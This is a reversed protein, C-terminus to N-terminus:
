EAPYDDLIRKAVAEKYNWDRFDVIDVGRHALYRNALEAVEPDSDQALEKLYPTAGYGLSGIHSVDIEELAGSQYARVNYRAVVTDVDVWFTVAGLVLAAIVVAKMNPFKPKFLWVSELMTTVTLWVMIIQTLVRKRTLGFSGIYLFMKASATTILFLTVMGLFLCLVKTLGPAADKKEVLGMVFCMLGLNIASLWAMEFFGRRAYEAMTFEEPLIGSLGGSFYALQSLLYVCYVLCVSVLLINVTIASFGRFTRTKAANKEAHRLGVCRSYLVWGAFAGFFLSNLPESWDKEPLLDMLGEFAADAKMLLVVLVAVVPVAFVIGLFAAGGKKGVTGANKRADNLGRAAASMSGIGLVFFARPADLVSGIGGPARRNQGTVLCFCLNVAFLLLLLMIFKVTGDSSRAFGAAIIGSLVLLATTYWDFRYGCGLLYWVSCGIVATAGIAFGLQFGGYLICNWMFVSCIVLAAGFTLERRGAPYRPSINANEDM